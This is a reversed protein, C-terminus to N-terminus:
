FNEYHEVACELAVEKRFFAQPDDERGKLAYLPSYSVRLVKTVITVANDASTLRTNALLEHLAAQYRWSKITLKEADKDEILVTVNINSIANIHNAGRELAFDVNDAIVFVAPTRYGAAKEYIFYSRPPETTVVPDNRSIRLAALTAAINTKIHEIILDVDTETLHRVSM